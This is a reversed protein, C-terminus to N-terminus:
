LTAPLGERYSPYRLPRRLWRLLRANRCRKSDRTLALRNPDEVPDRSLPVASLGLLRAAFGYVEAARTPENDCVLLLRQDLRFGLELLVEVLDDRHIRNTFRDPSHVGHGQRLRAIPGRGPGYIEPLRLVCTPVGRAEGWARALQELELRMKGWPSHPSPASDEDVWDGGRDGYVSTSSVYILGSVRQPCLAELARQMPELHSGSPGHYTRALPPVLYYVVAREGAPLVLGGPHRLDAAVVQEAPEGRLSSGRVPVGRKRLALGLAAGTYGWGLIFAREM